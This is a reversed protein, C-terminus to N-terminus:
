FRWLEYTELICFDQAMSKLLIPKASPMGGFWYEPLATHAVALKGSDGAFGELRGLLGPLVTGSFHDLL